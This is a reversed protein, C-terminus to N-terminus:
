VRLGKSRAPPNLPLSELDSVSTEWRSWHLRSVTFLPGPPGRVGKKNETENVPQTHYNLSNREYLERGCVVLSFSKGIVKENEMLPSYREDTYREIEVKPLM